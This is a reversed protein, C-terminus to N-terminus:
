FCGEEWMPIRTAAGWVGWSPSPPLDPLPPLFGEKILMLLANERCRVQVLLSPMNHAKADRDLPIIVENLIEEAVRDGMSFIKEADEASFYPVDLRYYGNEEAIVGLSQLYEVDSQMVGMSLDPDRIRLANTIDDMTMPGKSLEEIIIIPGIPEVIASESVLLQATSYPPREPGFGVINIWLPSGEPIINKLYSLFKDEKGSPYKETDYDLGFTGATKDEKRIVNHYFWVIEDDVEYGVLEGEPGCVLGEDLYEPLWRVRDFVCLDSIMGGVVVWSANEWPISKATTTEYYTRKIEPLHARLIDAWKESYKKSFENASRLEEKSLIDFTTVWGGDKETVLNYKALEKITREVWFRPISLEESIEKCSKPGSRISFLILQAPYDYVIPPYSFGWSLFDLFPEGQPLRGMRRLLMWIITDFIPRIGVGKLMDFVFNETLRSYFGHIINSCIM